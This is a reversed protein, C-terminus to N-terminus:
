VKPKDSVILRVYYATRLEEIPATEIRGEVPIASGSGGSVITRGVDILDGIVASATPDGGAGKGSFMVDGVFDGRIWVANYVDNVGALPHDKPLFTPHVRALVRGQGAPEVIGLLKIR